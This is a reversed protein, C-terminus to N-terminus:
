KEDSSRSELIQLQQFVMGALYEKNHRSLWTLKGYEDVVNKACTELTGAGAQVDRIIMGMIAGKIFAEKELQLQKPVLLNSVSPAVPAIPSEHCAKM